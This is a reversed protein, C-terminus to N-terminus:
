ATVATLGSSGRDVATLERDLWKSVKAVHGKSGSSALQLERTRGPARSLLWVLVGLYKRAHRLETAM